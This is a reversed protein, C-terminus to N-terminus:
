AFLREWLQQASPDGAAAHLRVARVRARVNEATLGELLRSGMEDALATLGYKMAVAFLATAELETASAPLEATYIYQLMAEIVEPTADEIEVRAQGAERMGGEFMREFVPSAAALVARHVSVSRGGCSIVADAFKRGQWLRM